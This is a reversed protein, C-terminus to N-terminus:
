SRSTSYAKAYASLAEALRRQARPPVELFQLGLAGRQEPTAWRVKALLRETRFFGFRVYLEVTTLPALTAGPALVLAGRRSLNRVEGRWHKPGQELTAKLRSPVRPSERWGLEPARGSAAAFLGALTARDAGQLSLSVSAGAAGYEKRVRVV